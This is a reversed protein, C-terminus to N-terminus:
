SIKISCVTVIFEWQEGRFLIGHGAMLICVCARVLRKYIVGEGPVLLRGYGRGGGGGAGAGGGGWVCVCGTQREEGLIMLAM